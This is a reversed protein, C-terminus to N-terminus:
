RLACNTRTWPLGHIGAFIGVPHKFWDKGFPQRPIMAVARGLRDLEGGDHFWGNGVVLVGTQHLDNSVM